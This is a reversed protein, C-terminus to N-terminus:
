GAYHLHNLKDGPMGHGAFEWHGNYKMPIGWEDWLRVVEYSREMWTRIFKMSRITKQQGSQLEAICADIDNGHYEPIYCQFHDNGSAGAGSYRSDSKEAVIVSLGSEAARIAAMLGAIGGGICLLDSEMSTAYRGM